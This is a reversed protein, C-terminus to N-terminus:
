QNDIYLLVINIQYCAFGFHNQTLYLYIYRDVDCYDRYLGILTDKLALVMWSLDIQYFVFVFNFIRKNTPSSTLVFVCYKNSLMNNLKILCFKNENLAWHKNFDRIGIIYFKM